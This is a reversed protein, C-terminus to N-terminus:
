DVYQFFTVKIPNLGGTDSKKLFAGAKSFQYMDGNTSYGGTLFFFNGTLPDVAFSETNSLDAKYEDKVTIFSENHLVGSNTDYWSFSADNRSWDAAYSTYVIYLKSDSLAVRSANAIETVKGASDMKKVVSKVADYDGACIVYVNGKTDSTIQTPNLGVTKETGSGTFNNLDIVSIVESTHKEGYSSTAVYLKNNTVTMQEPYPGVKVKTDDMKMSVTDVRGVYGGYLSVYVKGSHAVLSRPSLPENSANVPKIESLIKADKDLVYILNSGFMTVYVKSGYVIVDQALDGMGKNNAGEFINGYIKTSDVDYYSLVSNNEGWGGSNLVYAGSKFDPTEENSDDDDECSTFSVLAISAVMMSLFFNKMKM